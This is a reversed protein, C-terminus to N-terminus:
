LVRVRDGVRYGNDRATGLDMLVERDGEPARSTEGVLRLPGGEAWSFGLTPPGGGGIPSGDRDVFQAYGRVFPIARAVGPVQAVQEAVSEPIRGPDSSGGVTNAAQVQLDVGAVTQRFVDDFSQKVTDTLVYTASVFSVGLLVALATLALRLRRALLGRITAKWMGARVSRGSTGVPGRPARGTGDQGLRAGFRPVRAACGPPVGRGGRPSKWRRRDEGGRPGTDPRAGTLFDELWGRSRASFLGSWEGHCHVAKPLGFIFSCGMSLPRTASTATAAAMASPALAQPNALTEVVGGPSPTWFPTSWAIFESRWAFPMGPSRHLGFSALVAPAQAAFSDPTLLM